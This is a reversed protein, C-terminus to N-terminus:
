QPQAQAQQRAQPMMPCNQTMQQVRQHMAAWDVDINAESVKKLSADYKILKGAVAVVVGGDSTATISEQAMVGCAVACGPCAMGDMGGMIGRGMMGRQPRAPPQQQQAFLAYSGLVVMLALTIWTTWRKMRAGEKGGYPVRAMVRGAQGASTCERTRGDLWMDGDYRSDARGM